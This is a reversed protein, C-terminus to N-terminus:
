DVAAYLLGFSRNIEYCLFVLLFTIIKKSYSINKNSKHHNYYFVVRHVLEGSLSARNFTRNCAHTLRAVLLAVVFFACFWAIAIRVFIVNFLFLPYYCIIDACRNSGV